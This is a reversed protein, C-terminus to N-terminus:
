IQRYIPKETEPDRSLIEEKGGTLYEFLLGTMFWFPAFDLRIVGDVSLMRGTYDWPCIGLSKLFTGTLNEAFFILVMDLIGHRFIRDKVAIQGRDGIWSDVWKGIPGLLIGMGYIPFMYISTKGMFKMDGAAFGEVSTLLIELGWGTLGCLMFNRVWQRWGGGSSKKVAIKQNRNKQKWRNMFGTDTIRRDAICGKGRHKKGSKNVQVNM